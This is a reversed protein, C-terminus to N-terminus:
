QELMGQCTACSCRPLLVWAHPGRTSASPALFAHNIIPASTFQIETQNLCIDAGLRRTRRPESQESGRLPARHLKTISLSQVALRSSEFSRTLLTFFLCRDRPSLASISCYQLFSSPPEIKSMHCLEKQMSKDSSGFSRRFSIM